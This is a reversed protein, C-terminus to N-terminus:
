TTTSSRTAVAHLRRPHHLDLRGPFITGQMTVNQGVRWGFMELLRGGILAASRERLFAQKQDEPVVMEPYM